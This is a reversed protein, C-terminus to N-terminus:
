SLLTMAHSNGPETSRFKGASSIPPTKWNRTIARDTTRTSKPSASDNERHDQHPRVTDRRISSTLLEPKGRCIPEAGSRSCCEAPDIDVITRRWLDAAALARRAARMSQAARSSSSCAISTKIRALAVAGPRPGVKCGTSVHQSPDDRGDDGMLTIMAVGNILPCCATPSTPVWRRTFTQLGARGRPHQLSRSTRRSSRKGSNRRPGADRGVEHCSFAREGASFGCALGVDASVVGVLTVVPFDHGKAIIQTGVLIDIEGRGIATIIRAISGRRRVTDRDVRAVRAAPFAARLDAELRETGFGSQELFTGGCIGCAKPV